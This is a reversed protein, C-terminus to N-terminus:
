WRDRTILYIIIGAVWLMPLGIGFIPIWWIWGKICTLVAGLIWHIAWAILLVSDDNLKM